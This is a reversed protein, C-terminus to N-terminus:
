EFTTAKLSCVLRNQKNDSNVASHWSNPGTRFLFLSGPTGGVIKYPTDSTESEYIETGFVYEPNCYLVGRVFPNLPTEEDGYYDNHKHLKQDTSIMNEVGYFYKCNIDWVSNIANVIEDNKELIKELIDLYPTVHQPGDNNFFSKDSINQISNIYNNFANKDELGTIFNEICIYEFPYKILNEKCIKDINQVQVM